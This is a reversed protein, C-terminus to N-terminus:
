GIMLPRIARGPKKGWLVIGSYHEKKDGTDSYDHWCALLEDVTMMHYKGAVAPDMMTVLRGKIDVLVVYHGDEWIDEMNTDKDYVGWAQISLIVTKGQRLLTRLRKITMGRETRAKLGKRRAVKTIGRGSTGYHTTGTHPYLEPERGDWVNWYYLCSALSAAGCSYEYAQRVLPVYTPMM